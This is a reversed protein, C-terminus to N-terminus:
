INVLEATISINDDYLRVTGRLAETAGLREGVDEIELGDREIAFVASRAVLHLNPVRALWILIEAALGSGYYDQEPDSSANSFPLVAIKRETSKPDAM